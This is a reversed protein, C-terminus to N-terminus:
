RGISREIGCRQQAASTSPAVVLRSGGAAKAEYAALDARHIIDRPESGTGGYALGVSATISLTGFSTALPEALRDVIRQGITEPDTGPCATDILIVFEDGGLRAVVDTTRTSVQLRHAVQCLLHDGAAHGHRDNVPKFRDLDIFLVAV